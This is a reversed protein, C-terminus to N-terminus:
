LYRYPHHLLDRAKLHLAIPLHANAAKRYGRSVMLSHLTEM